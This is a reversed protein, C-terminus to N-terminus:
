KLIQKLKINIINNNNFILSINDENNHEDILDILNTINNKCVISFINRIEDQNQIFCKNDNLLKNNSIMKEFSTMYTIPFILCNTGSDFIIYKEKNLSDNSLLKNNNYKIEQFPCNWYYKQYSNRKLNKCIFKEYHDLYSPKEGIYFNNNYFDLVFINEKILGSDIIQNFTSYKLENINKIGKSLGFVGQLEYNISTENM